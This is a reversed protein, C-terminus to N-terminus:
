FQGCPETLLGSACLWCFNVWTGEGAPPAEHNSVNSTQTSGPVFIGLRERLEGLDLHRVSNIEQTLLYM